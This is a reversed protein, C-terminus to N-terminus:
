CCGRARALMNKEHMSTGAILCNVGVGASAREITLSRRAGHGAAAHRESGLIRIAAAAIQQANKANRMLNAIAANATVASEGPHWCDYDTVM